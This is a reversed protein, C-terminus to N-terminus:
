WTAHHYFEWDDFKSNNLLPILQRLTSDLDWWYAERWFYDSDDKTRFLGDMPPLLEAAEDRDKKELLHKCLAVLEQLQERLLRPL